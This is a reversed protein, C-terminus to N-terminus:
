HIRVVRFSYTELIENDGSGYLSIECYGGPVDAAPVSFRITIERDSVAARLNSRSLIEKGESSLVVRYSEKWNEALDLRLGVLVADKPIEFRQTAQAGRQAGPFVTFWTESATRVEVPARKGQEQRFMAANQAARARETELQALLRAGEAEMSQRQAQLEAIQEKLGGVQVLMTAGGGVLMLLTSALSYALVPRPLNFWGVLVEYWRKKLTEEQATRQKAANAAYARLAKTFRLKYQREPACLFIEEFRLRDADVLEEDLYEEVLEDEVLDIQQLFKDDTMLRTEVHEREEESVSSLLYRRILPESSADLRMSKCGPEM